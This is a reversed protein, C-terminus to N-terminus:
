RDFELPMGRFDEDFVGRDYVLHGNVFTSEVSWALRAGHQPSWRCKYLPEGIMQEEPAVVVIDARM